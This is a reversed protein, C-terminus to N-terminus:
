KKPSQTFPLLKYAGGTPACATVEIYCSARMTDLPKSVTNLVVSLCASSRVVAQASGTKSSSLHNLLSRLEAGFFSDSECGDSPDSESSAQETRENM